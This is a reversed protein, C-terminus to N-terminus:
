ALPPLSLIQGPQLARPDLLNNAEALHRWHSSHGYEEYAILDLRDGARVIRTKRSETRTTPNQGEQGDDSADLQKFSVDAKARVPTGDPLFLTYTVTVSEVIALFLILKGWRFQVLPPLLRRTGQWGSGSSEAGLMTLKLLEQTYKRVDKEDSDQTTDFTFKLSFTAPQGGGFDLDQSNKQAVSKEPAKWTATKTIKLEAPNFQFELKVYRKDGSGLENGKKDVTVIMARQPNSPVGGLSQPVTLMQLPNIMGVLGAM